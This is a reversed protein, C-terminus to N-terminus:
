YISGGFATNNIATEAMTVGVHRRQNEPMQKFSENSFPEVVRDLISQCLKKVQESTPVRTESVEVENLEQINVKEPSLEM